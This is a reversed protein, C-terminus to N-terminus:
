INSIMIAQSTSDYMWPIRGFLNLDGDCVIYKNKHM